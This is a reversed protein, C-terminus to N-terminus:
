VAFTKMRNSSSQEGSPSLELQSTTEAVSFPVPPPPRKAASAPEVTISPLVAAAADPKSVSTDYPPPSGSDSQDQATPPLRSERRAVRLLRVEELLEDM